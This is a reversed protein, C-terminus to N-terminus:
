GWHSCAADPRHSTLVPDIYDLLSLDALLPALERVHDSPVAQRCGHDRLRRLASHTDPYLRWGLAADAYRSRVQTALGPGPFAPLGVARVCRGARRDHGGV